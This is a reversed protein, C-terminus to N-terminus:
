GVGRRKEENGIAMRRKYLHRVDGDQVVEVRFISSIHEEVVTTVV